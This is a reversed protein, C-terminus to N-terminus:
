AKRKGPQSQNGAQHAPEGRLVREIHESWARGIKFCGSHNLHIENHWDGSIGTTGPTALALPVATSDFVQLGPFQAQDAALSKLLLALHMVMLRSVAAWDAAPINYARFTPYLWPGSDEAGAPRPMPVAYCHMFVPKGASPGQDRLSLLHRINARLYDAYTSWGPESFYRAVGQSPAGWETQHRLLRLHLPILEVPTPDQGVPHAPTRAAAILDNGGVSLLLGDWVPADPATLLRVFEPAGQLDVMHALAENQGACNIALARQQFVLEQLLNAHASLKAAAASFWSDGQALLRWRYGELFPAPNSPM